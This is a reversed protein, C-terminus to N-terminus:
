VNTYSPNLQVRVKDFGNPKRGIARTSFSFETDPNQKRVQYYCENVVHLAEVLNKVHRVQHLLAPSNWAQSIMTISEGNSEVKYSSVAAAIIKLEYM